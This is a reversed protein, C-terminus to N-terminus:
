LAILGQVQGSQRYIALVEQASGMRMEMGLRIYNGKRSAKQQVSLTQPFLSMVEQVQEPRVIFRFLYVAPWSYHADLNELFREPDFGQPQIM